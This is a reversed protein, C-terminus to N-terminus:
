RFVRECKRLLNAGSSSVASAGELSKIVLPWFYTMYLCLIAVGSVDINIAVPVVLWQRSIRSPYFLIHLRSRLIFLNKWRFFSEWKRLLNAWSSMASAGELISYPPSKKSHAPSHSRRFNSVIKKTLYLWSSSWMYKNFSHVHCVSMLHPFM